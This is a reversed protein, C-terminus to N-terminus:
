PYTQALYDVLTQEETSNLQAGRSIMQDVLGKWQQTDGHMMTIRNLNHCVTCREQLLAQGTLPTNNTSGSSSQTSSGCAALLIATLLLFTAMLVPILYKKKM